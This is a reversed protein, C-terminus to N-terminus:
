RVAPHRRLIAEIEGPEIRFGRIKVQHDCRGLFALEWNNLYRALDGTRYLRAGPAQGFPDPLFRDASVDPRNLYGRALGAGGIYIEGVAGKPVPQFNSDLLYIQSDPIPRGISPPRDPLKEIVASTSYTTDESPGYLNFVRQVTAAQYVQEVLERSLAEGAL